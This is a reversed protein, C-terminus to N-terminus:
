LWSLGLVTLAALLGKSKISSYINAEEERVIIELEEESFDEAKKGAILIRTEARSIAKDRIKERVRLGIKKPNLSIKM